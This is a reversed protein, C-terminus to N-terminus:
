PQEGEVEPLLPQEEVVCAVYDITELPPPITVMKGGELVKVWIPRV